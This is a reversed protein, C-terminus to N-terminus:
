ARFRKSRLLAVARNRIAKNSGAEALWQVHARTLDPHELVFLQIASDGIAQIEPFNEALGSRSIKRLLGNRKYLRNVPPTLVRSHRDALGFYQDDSLIGSDILEMVRNDSLDCGDPGHDELQFVKDILDDTLRPQRHLFDIFARCRYHEQNKDESRCYLAYQAELYPRDIIGWELWESTYGLESLIEALDV